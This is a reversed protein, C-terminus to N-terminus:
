AKSKRKEGMIHYHKFKIIEARKKGGNSKLQNNHCEMSTCLKEKIMESPNCCLICKKPITM